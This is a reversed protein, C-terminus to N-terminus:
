SFIKATFKVQLSLKFSDAEEDVKKDYVEDVITSELGGEPIVIDSHDKKLDEKAKSELKKLLDDKAKKQDDASVVTIKKKTGGTFNTLSKAGVLNLDATGIKFVTNAPLNGEEGITKATVDASVQACTDTCLPPSASVTATQDLAFQIQPGSIPMLTTGAFFTKEETTRNIVAVKGKAPTGVTKEGTAKAELSDEENVEYTKLPIVGKDADPSTVSASAVLTLESDKLQPDTFLTVMAGPVLWFLAFSGVVVLVVLGALAYVCKPGKLFGIKPLSFWKKKEAAPRPTAIVPEEAVDKGEIFGLNEKEGVAEKAVEAAEGGKFIISKGLSAAFLYIVDKNARTKLVESGPFVFIEIEKDAEGSVANLVDALKSSEGFELRKM